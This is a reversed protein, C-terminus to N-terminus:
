LAIDNFLPGKVYHEHILVDVVTRDQHPYPENATQTDWEGARIMIDHVVTLDIVCHSTTM